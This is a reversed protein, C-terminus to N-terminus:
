QQRLQDLCREEKFAEFSMKDPHSRDTLVFKRGELNEDQDHQM